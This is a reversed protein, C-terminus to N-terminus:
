TNMGTGLTTAVKKEVQPVIKESWMITNPVLIILTQNIKGDGAEKRRIRSFANILTLLRLLNQSRRQSSYM